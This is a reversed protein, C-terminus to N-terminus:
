KHDAKLALKLQYVAQQIDKVALIRHGQFDHDVNTTLMHEMRNLVKISRVIKQHPELVKEHRERGAPPAVGPVQASSPTSSSFGMVVALGAVSTFAAIRKISVNM